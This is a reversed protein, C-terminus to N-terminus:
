SLNEFINLAITDGHVQLSNLTHIEDSFEELTKSFNYGCDIQISIVNVKKLKKWSNFDDRFKDTIPAQGDTVFIISAKKWDQTNSDCFQRARALPAEFETGGNEFYMCFDLVKKVDFADTKLFQHVKLAAPDHNGSFHIAAFDRKQSKAVELLAM